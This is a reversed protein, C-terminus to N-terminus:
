RFPHRPSGTPRRHFFFRDIIIYTLIYRARSGCLCVDIGAGATTHNGHHARVRIPPVNKKGKTCSARGVPRRCSINIRNTTMKTKWRRVSAVGDSRSFTVISNNNVNKLEFWLILIYLM